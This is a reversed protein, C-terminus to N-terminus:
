KSYTYQYSAGLQEYKELSAIISPYQKHSANHLNDTGIAERIMMRVHFSQYGLANLRKSLGVIRSVTQPQEKIGAPYSSPTTFVTMQEM